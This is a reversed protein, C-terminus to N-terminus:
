STLKSNAMDVMIQWEDLEVPMISLRGGKKVLGVKEILPNAKIAKLPLVNTFALEFQIDVAVWRPNEHTSKPDYYKAEPDFQTPDSYASKVVSAIGAIGIEKCSSHYILVRDGEKVDDRLMNRAQYNRIGDWMEVQNERLDEISFADPETKFVWYRM